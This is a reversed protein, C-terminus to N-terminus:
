AEEAEELEEPSHTDLGNYSGITIEKRPSAFMGVVAGALTAVAIGLILERRSLTVSTNLSSLFKQYTQKM